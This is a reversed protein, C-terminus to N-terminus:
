QVYDDRNDYMARQLEVNPKPLADWGKLTFLSFPGSTWTHIRDENLVCNLKENNKKKLNLAFLMQDFSIKRETKRKQANNLIPEFKLM